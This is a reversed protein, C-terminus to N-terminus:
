DLLAVSAARYRVPRTNRRGQRRQSIENKFTFLLFSYVAGLIGVLLVWAFIRLLHRAAHPTSLFPGIQRLYNKM